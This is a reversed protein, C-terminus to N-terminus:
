GLPVDWVAEVKSHVWYGRGPVFLDGEELFHWTKTEADFWQIADIDPGFKLNKLGLPRNYSGLSPFGVLNWGKNLTVTQNVSFKLGGYEFVVGPTDTIHIFFGRTHNLTDLDNMESPKSIHNHKWHDSADTIDYWQVADYSGAIPDLVSDLDMISQIAPISILNWGKYLFINDRVGVMLPYHDVSDTDITYNTDGIGDNGVIDQNPGSYLDEGSYDSWYNGGLPYSLNWLNSNFDSAQQTNNIFYNHYVISNPAQVLRLGVDNDIITNNRITYNGYKSALIGWLSGSCYNDAVLIRNVLSLKIGDVMTNLVTNNLIANDNSFTYLYIGGTPVDIITNM